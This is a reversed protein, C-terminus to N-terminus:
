VGKARLAVAKIEDLIRHTEHNKQEDDMMDLERIRADWIKIHAGYYQSDSIHKEADIAVRLAGALEENKVQTSYYRSNGTEQYNALAKEARKDAEEIIKNIIEIDM